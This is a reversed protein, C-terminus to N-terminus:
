PRSPLVPPRDQRPQTKQLAQEIMIWENINERDVIGVLQGNEVVPFVYHDPATLYKNHVKQLEADPSLTVYDLRMVQSVPAEKGYEALGRILERRSLVGAPNGSADVVVFGHEQSYLVVEAVRSLPDQPSLPTFQTIIIDRVLHGALFGQITELTAESGAGLYVFLGIFVLWFNYFLGFFVFGIALAQGTAAAIRTAQSRDLRFSLLARLVRGGDMPFAPILNFLALIVNALFLNFAWSAGPTIGSFRLEALAPMTGTLQLYLWLLLAIVLNVLPGALAVQLEQAPKEPMSEMSAIGGIPYISIDRTSIGFHRAVLAHGFEHLVVCAFLLLIFVIGWVGRALDTGLGSYIVFIWALLILFTWHIYVKVGFYSGIFLSRQKM